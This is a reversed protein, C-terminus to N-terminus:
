PVDEEIEDLEAESELAEKLMMNTLRVELLIALLLERVDLARDEVTSLDATTTLLEGKENLTQGSM